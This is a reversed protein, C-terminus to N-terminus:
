EHTSESVAHAQLVPAKHYPSSQPPRPDRRPPRGSWSSYSAALTPNLALLVNPDKANEAFARETRLAKQEIMDLNVTNPEYGKDVLSAKIYPQCNMWFQRVLEQEDVDGATDALNHLRHLYDRV